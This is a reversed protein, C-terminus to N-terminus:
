QSGTFSSTNLQYDYRVRSLNNCLLPFCPFPPPTCWYKIVRLIKYIQLYYEIRNSKWVNQQAVTRQIENKKRMWEREREREREERKREREREEM